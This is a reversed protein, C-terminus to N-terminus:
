VKFQGTLTIDGAAEINLLAPAGGASDEAYLFYKSSGSISRGVIWKGAGANFGQGHFQAANDSSAALYSLGSLVIRIAGTGTHGTWAVRM